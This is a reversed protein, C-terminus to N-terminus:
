QKRRNWIADHDGIVVCRKKALVGSESGSQVQYPSGRNWFSRITTLAMQRQPDSDVTSGRWPALSGPRSMLVLLRRIGTISWPTAVSCVDKALAELGAVVGVLGVPAVAPKM